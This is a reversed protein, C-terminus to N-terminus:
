GSQRPTVFALTKGDPSWEPRHGHGGDAASSLLRSNGNADTVWLEAQTFPVPSDPQAIYAIQTGDPSWTLDAIVKGPQDAIQRRTTGDASM